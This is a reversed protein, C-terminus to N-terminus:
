RDTRGYQRSVYQKYQKTHRRKLWDPNDLYWAVAKNLARNLDYRPLWGFENIFKTGDMSYRRDHGPRDKVYEILKPSKGLIDLLKLTLEYNSVENRSSVNYVEGERFGDIALEVAACLDDTHLWTRRQQGDGYVPVALDHSICDIFLPILKEPYQYPGMINVPRIIMARLGYTRISANILMDAAAKTAAYPSSPKPLDLETFSEDDDAPGYVEDTSFHIMSISSKTCFDALVQTGFVNTRIFDAPYLISRDVHTEAALNIVMDIGTDLAASIQSPDCIDGQIFSIRRKSILAKINSKFGAYTLLDFVTIHLEPRKEALYKVLNTGIFGCGGTILLNM